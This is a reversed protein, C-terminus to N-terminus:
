WSCFCDVSEICDGDSIWCLEKCFKFPCNEVEYSIVFCQPYSFYDQVIFLSSTDGNRIELQVVSSYHYFSHPISIFYVCQDIPDFQLGLCLDVWTYVDSKQNHVWLYM